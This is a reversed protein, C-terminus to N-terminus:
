DKLLSDRYDSPNMGFYKRFNSAFHSTSNFGVEYMIGIINNEGSEIMSAAKKIRYIRLLANPTEGTLAHIKRFFQSRSMNLEKGIEDVKFDSSAYNREFHEFLKKILPDNDLSSFGSTKRVLLDRSFKERLRKRQDILNKIRILLEEADFPKILYDDAGAQLGEIKSCKGAKATLMILPIHTTREDNKLIHCMKMGDMVPMMLDSIVLDPITDIAVTLGKQGNEASLVVFNESLIGTIYNTLDANDEVILVLPKKDRIRPKTIKGTKPKDGLIMHDGIPAEIIELSHSVKEDDRFKEKAVPLRLSFITGKGETSEVSIKGHYLEVLEKTLALGIGTGEAIRENSDNVQFFRDFIRDLKDQPIGIGSDSVSLILYEPKGTGQKYDFRNNITIQGKDPTFKFANSILNVLIKEVKDRDFWVNQNLGTLDYKYTIKKSEALSVFSQIITRILVEINGESVQMSIKGTEMKSIDLLQNILTQLRLTNRHMIDLLDKRLSVTKKNQKKLDDLPGRILTLPTRFEHSVNAFFRSKIRDIESVKEKEMRELEVARKLKMRNNQFRWFWIGIATLLVAYLLYAYWTLWPPQHILISISADGENWVGLDSTAIVHFTYKGPKLNNFDVDTRNGAYVWDDNFGELKYKYQNMGINQFKLLAYSLSLNNQNYNLEIFDTYTVSRSLISDKGPKIVINNVSLQTLVLPSSENTIHNISDPLFLFLGNRSTMFIEGSKMKFATRWISNSPLGDKVTFNTFSETAINFRSLGVRTGLWLNGKDDDVITVVDNSPLGNKTTFFTIKFDIPDSVHNPILKILGYSSTGLWLIGEENRYFNRVGPISWITGNGDIAKCEKVDSPTAMTKSINEIPPIIKYLGNKGLALLTGSDLETFIQLNHPIKSNANPNDALKYLCEQNLDYYYWPRAQDFGFWIRKNNDEFLYRVCLFPNRFSTRNSSGDIIEFEPEAQEINRFRLVGLNTIGIWLSKKSDLLVPGVDHTNNKCTDKCWAEFQGSEPNFIYIGAEGGIRIKNANMEPYLNVYNESHPDPKYAKFYKTRKIIQNISKDTYYWISGANDVLLVSSFYYEETVPYESEHPKYYIEKSDTNFGYIGSSTRVWTNNQNDRIGARIYVNNLIPPSKSGIPIHPYTGNKFHEPYIYWPPLIYHGSSDKNLPSDWTEGIYEVSDSVLNLRYVRREADLWIYGRKDYAISRITYFNDLRNKDEPEISYNKFINKIRNYTSFGNRHAIWLNGAEDETIDNINNSELVFPTIKSTIFREFSETFKNYRNLGWNTGIWINGKSDEFLCNIVYHSISNSDFPDNRFIRFRSGDYRYLGEESGFWIFGESDQLM